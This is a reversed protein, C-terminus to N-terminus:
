LARQADMRPASFFLSFFSDVWDCRLVLEARIAGLRPRLHVIPHSGDLWDSDLVLLDRIARRM